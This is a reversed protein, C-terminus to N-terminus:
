CVVLSHLPAPSCSLLMISWCGLEDCWGSVCIVPRLRNRRRQYVGNSFSLSLCLVCHATSRPMVLWSALCYARLAVFSCFVCCVLEAQVPVIPVPVAAVAVRAQEGPEPETDGANQNDAEEAAQEGNKEEEADAM